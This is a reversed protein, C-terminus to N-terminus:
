AWTPRLVTPVQPEYKAAATMTALPTALTGLWADVIVSADNSPVSRCM